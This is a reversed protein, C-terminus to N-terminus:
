ADKDLAVALERLRQVLNNFLGATLEVHDALVDYFDERPVFLLRTEEATEATALRPESNVLAWAGFTGQPLVRDLFRGARSMRVSGSVVIYLGDPPDGESYLRHGPPYTIEQTIAALYSLQELTVQSFLDVDQLFLTKELNTLM